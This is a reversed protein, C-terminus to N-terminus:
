LVQLQQVTKTENSAALLTQVHVVAELATVDKLEAVDHAAPDFSFYPRSPTQECRSRCRRWQPAGGLAGPTGTLGIASLAVDPDTRQHRRTRLPHAAHFRQPYEVRHAPLGLSVKKWGGLRELPAGPYFRVSDDHRLPFLLAGRLWENGAPAISRRCSPSSHKWQVLRISGEGSLSGSVDYDRAHLPM